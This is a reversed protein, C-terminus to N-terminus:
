GKAFAEAIKEKGRKIAKRNIHVDRAVGHGSKEAMDRLLDSCFMVQAADQGLGQAANGTGHCPRCTLRRSGFEGVAGTGHCKRCRHDLWVALTHGTLAIVERDPIMHRRRTAMNLAYAALANKAETLTKLHMLTLATATVAAREASLRLEEAQQRYLAARTPGKDTQRQERQAETLKGAIVGRVREFEAEALGHEGKISDFEARLRQLLSGLSASIGFAALLDASGARDDLMRLDSSNIARTYREDLGPKTTDETM